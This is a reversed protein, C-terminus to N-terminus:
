PQSLDVTHRHARGPPGHACPHQPVFLYVDNDTQIRCGATMRMEWLTQGEFHGAEAIEFRVKRKAFRDALRRLSRYFDRQRREEALLAERVDKQRINTGGKMVQFFRDYCALAKETVQPAIGSEGPLARASVELFIEKLCAKFERRCATVYEGTAGPEGAIKQEPIDRPKRIMKARESGRWPACGFILLYMSFVFFRLVTGRMRSM